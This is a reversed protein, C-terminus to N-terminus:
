YIWKTIVKEINQRIDLHCFNKKDSVGIGTFLESLEAVEAVQSATMGQVTVDVALGSLHMSLEAGGVKKNEQCDRYGRYQLGAFNVLIPKGLKLRFAELRNLLQYNILCTGQSYLIKLGQPSLVEEPKFHDWAWGKM